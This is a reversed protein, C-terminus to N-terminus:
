IWDHKNKNLRKKKNESGRSFHDTVSANCRSFVIFNHLFWMKIPALILLKENINVKYGQYGQMFKAVKRLQILYNLHRKGSKWAKLKKKKLNEM